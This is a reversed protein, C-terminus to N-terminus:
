RLFDKIDQYCKIQKCSAFSAERHFLYETLDKIFKIKKDAVSICADYRGDKRPKEFYFVVTNDAKINSLDVARSYLAINGPSIDKADPPHRGEDIDRAKRYYGTIRKKLTLYSKFCGGSEGEEVWQKRLSRCLGLLLKGERCLSTSIKNVDGQNLIIVRRVDVQGKEAAKKHDEVSRMMSPDELWAKWNHDHVARFIGGPSRPNFIYEYFLLYMLDPPFKATHKDGLIDGCINFLTEFNQSRVSFLLDRGVVNRFRHRSEKVDPLEFRHIAACSDEVKRSPVCLNYSESGDYKTKNSKVKYSTVDIEVSKLKDWRRLEIIHFHPIGPVNPNVHGAGLVYLPWSSLERSAAAQGSEHRDGHLLLSVKFRCLLKLLHDANGIAKCGKSYYLPTNHVLAIRMPGVNDDEEDPDEKELCKHFGTLHSNRINISGNDDLQYNWVSNLLLFQVDFGDIRPIFVSTRLGDIPTCRFPWKITKKDADDHYFTNVARIYYEFKQFSSTGTVLLDHNGPVFLFQQSELNIQDRFERMSKVFSKVKSASGGKLFIDGTVAVLNIKHKKAEIAIEKCRQKVEGVDKGGFHM